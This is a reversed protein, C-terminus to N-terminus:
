EGFSSGGFERIVAAAFEQQAKVQETLAAVDLGCKTCKSYFDLLQSSSSVIAEALALDQATFPNLTKSAM